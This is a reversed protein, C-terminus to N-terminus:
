KTLKLKVRLKELMDKVLADLDYDHKWNWDRRADSDDLSCPWSDAITQRFDPKYSMAFEPMHKKIAAALEEPTFSMAAINYTRSTLQESPAELLMTTAKLCDPMYMMPLETRASLFSTYSGNQLAKYFIEVAYDTTGGGPPAVNSIIGPYRVSRFDVNFKTHYYEGLLELYVKSVGYITNPRMITTNPTNHRPSSPGFAAISSPALVRLNHRRALELVNNLGQVNVELAISPNQEGTASLISANHIVWDVNHEVVTRELDTYQLINLYVFPGGDALGSSSAPKRVDGAIVNEAGYRQRLAPVLETGIQGLGGTILVRPKRTSTSSTSMSRRHPHLPSLSASSSSFLSLSSCTRQLTRLSSFTTAEATALAFLGHGHTTAATRVNNM